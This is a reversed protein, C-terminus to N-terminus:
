IVGDRALAALDAPTHGLLAAFVEATHEGLLPARTVATPSDALHIPNGPMTFRGRIPHEVSVMMGREILHRSSLLEGTDLVAGCPVGAGALIEMAEHKTKTQTWAEVIRDIEEVFRWREQRTAFRPDDGYEPRGVIRMLTRWMDPTAAHLYIYDNPGGPACRYLNCPATNYVRNGRRPVPLGRPYHDRFNVRVMNVVSDQQAVEVQQGVGTARRQILAALIGVACHLGSGTDGLGATCRLPIGDPEGTLSMSGGMAQSIWEFSKYGAYPGVSGFGKISAFIIRPNIRRLADYGLGLRDMTGPGFNEVVVDAQPLMAEFLARGRDQKLDLTISKKNANLLLFYYGDADTRDSLSRRGPEGQPPEIKIVEAGLWALLQTCSAGAEYQTLDLIRIGDLAKGM